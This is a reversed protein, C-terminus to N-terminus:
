CKAEAQMREAEVRDFCAGRGQTARQRSGEGCMGLLGISSCCGFLLVGSDFTSGSNQRGDPRPSRGQFIKLPVSDSLAHM